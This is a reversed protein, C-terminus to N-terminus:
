SVAELCTTAQEWAQAWEGFIATTEFPRGTNVARAAKLIFSKAGASITEYAAVAPAWAGADEALGGGGAAQWRLHLAM